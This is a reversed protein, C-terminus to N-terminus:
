PSRLGFIKETYTRSRRLDDELSRTIVTGEEYALEVVLFGRYNIQHLYKAVPSYDVDGAGFDEM